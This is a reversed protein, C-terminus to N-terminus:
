INKTTSFIWVVRDILFCTKWILGTLNQNFVHELKEEEEKAPEEDVQSHTVESMDKQVFAVETTSKKRQFPKKSFRGKSAKAFTNLINMTEDVSKPYNNAGM